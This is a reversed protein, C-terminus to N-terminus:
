QDVGTGDTPDFRLTRDVVSRAVDVLPTGTSFAFARLRVLAHDVTVGLQVSVMGSAQHVVYHFRASSGLDSAVEGPSADAQMLLIVDAAVDALVIADAHQDGTLPGPQDRYLQLAGLRAAGVRIPFAFVARAGTAVASPAFAVWRMASPSALDPELVPRGERYADLCPGEGLTFQLEELADSVSNTSCVSGRSMGDAMLMISAGSAATLEACVACLRDTALQLQGEGLLHGLIRLRRDVAV